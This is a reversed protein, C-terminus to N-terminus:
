RIQDFIKFSISANTKSKDVKPTTYSLWSPQPVFYFLVSLPRPGDVYLTIVVGEKVREETSLLVHLKKRQDFDLEKNLCTGFKHSSIIWLLNWWYLVYEIGWREHLCKKSPSSPSSVMVAWAKEARKLGSRGRFKSRRKIDLRALEVTRFM